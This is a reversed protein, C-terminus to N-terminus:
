KASFSRELRHIMYRVKLSAKIEMSKSSIEDLPASFKRKPSDDDFQRNKM